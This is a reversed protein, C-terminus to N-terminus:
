FFLFLSFLINKPCSECMYHGGGFPFYMGGATKGGAGAGAASTSYSMEGTESDECLFREADFKEPHAYFEPNRHTMWTPAMVQEGQKVWHGALATSHDVQRVVLLDVYFRLTEHFTSNLLPLKTLAPINIQSDNPNQTTHLETLIRPLLTNNNNPTKPNPPTNPALLHFLLWGTAPTANSLIGALFILDSGARAPLTLHQQKYYAHRARVARAGTWPTWDADDADDNTSDSSHQDGAELWASLKKICADRAKYAAPIIFRPVGFLLGLMNDEWVRYDTAFDPHMELLKSGYLATTSARFIRQWLWEYLNVEVGEKLAEDSELEKVFVDMFNRTLSNVASASLLHEAHIRATYLKGAEDQESPFAKKADEPSMGLANIGLQQDLGSRSLQRSKFLATIGEPSYIFTTRTGALMIAFASQAYRTSLTRLWSWFGGIKQNSFTLASGLTPIPYPILPPRSPTTTKKNNNNNNRISLHFALLTSLYTYALILLVTLALTTALNQPTLGNLIDTIAM